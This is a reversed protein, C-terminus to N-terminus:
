YQEDFNIYVPRPYAWSNTREDVWYLVEYKNNGLPKLVAYAVSTAGSMNTPQPCQISTGSIIFTAPSFSVIDTSDIIDQNFPKIRLHAVTIGNTLGPGGVLGNQAAFGRNIYLKGTTDIHHLQLSIALQERADKDIEDSSFQLFNTTDDVVKSLPLLDSQERTMESTYRSFFSVSFMNYMYKNEFRGNGNTYRLPLDFRQNSTNPASQSGAISNSPITAEIVINNNFPYSNASIVYSAGAGPLPGFRINTIEKTQDALYLPISLNPISAAKDYSFKAFRNITLQRRVVNESPISSQRWKELVAVYTNLKVFYKDLSYQSNIGAMGVSHAASTIIYDGNRFGVELKEDTDKHIYSQQKQSGTNSKSVRDHLEGLVDSSIVNAQQNYNQTTLEESTNLKRERYTFLNTETYPVYEIKFRFEFIPVTSLANKNSSVRDNYGANTIDPRNSMQFIAHKCDEGYISIFYDRALDYAESIYEPKIHDEINTGSSATLFKPFVYDMVVKWSQQSPAWSWRAPARYTLGVINPKGQTYYFSGGRKFATEKNELTNYIAEEVLLGQKYEEPTGANFTTTLEKYWERPIISLPVATWKRNNEYGGNTLCFVYLFREIDFGLVKYIPKSTVLMADDSKIAGSDPSRVTMWGDAPEVVKTLEDGGTFNSVNSVIRTRYSEPNYAESLSGFKSVMDVDEQTAFVELHGLETFNNMRPVIKAYSFVMQLAEYLTYRTFTWEPSIIGSLIQQTDSAIIFVQNTDLKVLNLLRLAVDYLTPEYVGEIRTITSDPLMIMSLLFSYEMLALTHKYKNTIGIKEVGDAALIAYFTEKIADDEKWNILVKQNPPFPASRELRNLSITYTNFSETLNKEKIEVPYTIYSSYDVGNIFIEFTNKKMNYHGEEEAM